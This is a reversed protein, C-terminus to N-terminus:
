AHEPLFRQRWGMEQFSIFFYIGSINRWVQQKQKQTAKTSCCRVGRLCSWHIGLLRESRSGAAWAGSQILDVEKGAKKANALSLAWIQQIIAKIHDLRQVFTGKAKRKRMM